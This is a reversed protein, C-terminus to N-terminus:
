GLLAHTGGLVLHLLGGVALAITFVALSVAAATRAGHEKVIVFLSAICPVFLTIVVLSILVQTTDLAGARALEFLGAAGYDRRLFGLLLAGTAQAPLGLWHVVLPALGRELAALLGTADLVFLVLTGLLFLPIVERLYWELRAATKVVVSRASPLRMPPLELLLETPRGPLLRAALAGVVLLVALVVGSWVLTARIGAAGLMGLVVGLQASCPVALALLLTVQLREKRTGLVRTTMTAMTVCGLGLVMPLVARGNLGMRRFVRDLMVSLRALYGSDELVGFVLFFAGVIPLVIAVGYTLAMTVLGYDGVLLDRLLAVPVAADVARTVLPNVFGGFLRTELLDVLVGAGLWGVVVYVAALVAALMAWGYVPHVALRGVTTAVRRRSPGAPRVVAAVIADVVALRARNCAYAIPQGLEAAVAARERAVLDRDSASLGVQDALDDDGALLLLALARPSRGGAPLRPVLRAVAAEVPAPYTVSVTAPRADGLTAALADIGEGRTGVTPVVPVGLWAALRDTEVAMGRAAAEDALNCAIALPAGTEALELTLLLSLRLDTADLVQLLTPTDTGVVIRRTVREDEAAPVLSRIGPTDIVERGDGGGLRGRSVEVTTGPYNAAAVYTGTLATFVCSKGVNARGVLVLPAADVDAAPTAVCSVM